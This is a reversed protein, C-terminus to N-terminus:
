SAIAGFEMKATVKVGRAKILGLLEAHEREKKKRAAAERRANREVEKRLKEARSRSDKLETRKADELDAVKLLGHDCMQIAEDYRCFHDCPQSLFIACMTKIWLRPCVIAPCILPQRLYAWSFFKSVLGWM